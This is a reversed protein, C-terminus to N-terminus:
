QKPKKAIELGDAELKHSIHNIAIFFGLWLLSKESSIHSDFYKVIEEQTKFTVVFNNKQLKM